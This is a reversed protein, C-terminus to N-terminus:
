VCSGSNIQAVNSGMDDYDNDNDQYNGEEPQSDEIEINDLINKM